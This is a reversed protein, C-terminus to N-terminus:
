YNSTCFPNPYESSFNAKFIIRVKIMDPEKYPAEPACVRFVDAICCATLLRVDKSSHETFFETALFLALETYKMTDDQSMDQFSSAM